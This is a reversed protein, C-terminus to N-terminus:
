YKFYIWIVLDSNFSKMFSIIDQFQLQKLHEFTIKDIYLFIKYIVLM